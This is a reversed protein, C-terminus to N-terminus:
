IPGPQMQRHCAAGGASRCDSPAIGSWRSSNDLRSSSLCISSRFRSFFRTSSLMLLISAVWFRIKSRMASSLSGGDAWAELSFCSSLSSELSFSSSLSAELSLSSSLSASSSFSFSSLSSSSFSSLSSLSALSPLSSLSSFSSFPSLSSFSSFFALSSFASSSFAERSRLLLSRSFSPLRDFGSGRLRFMNPLISPCRWAAFLRRSFSFPEFDVASICRACSRVSSFSEILLIFM